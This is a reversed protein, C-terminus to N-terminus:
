LEYGKSKAWVEMYARFRPTFSISGTASNKSNVRVAGNTGLFFYQTGNTYVDYKSRSPVPKWGKDLFFMVMKEKITLNKFLKQRAM